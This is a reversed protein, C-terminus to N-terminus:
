INRPTGDPNMKTKGEEILKIIYGLRGYIKILFAAAYKAANEDTVKIQQTSKFREVGTKNSDPMVPNRLPKKHNKSKM